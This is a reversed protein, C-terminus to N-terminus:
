GRRRTEELVRLLCRDGTSLFALISLVNGCTGGAWLRPPTATREDLVVDLAVLGAGVVVRKTNLQFNLVNSSM